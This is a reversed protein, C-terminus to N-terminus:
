NANKDHYIAGIHTAYTDRGNERAKNYFDVTHPSPIGKNNTYYMNATYVHNPNM